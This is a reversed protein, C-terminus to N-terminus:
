RKVIFRKEDKEIIKYYDNTLSYKEFDTQDTVYIKSKNLNLDPDDLAINLCAEATPTGDCATMGAAYDADELKNIYMWYFRSNIFNHSLNFTLMGDSYSGEVIYAYHSQTEEDVIIVFHYTSQSRVYVSIEQPSSLPKLIIM